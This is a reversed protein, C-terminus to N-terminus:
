DCGGRLWQHWLRGYWQRLGGTGASTVRVYERVDYGGTCGSTMVERVRQLRGGTGRVDYGGAGESTARKYGGSALRGHDRVDGEQVM